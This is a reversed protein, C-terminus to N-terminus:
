KHQESRSALHPCPLSSLLRFKLICDLAPHLYPFLLCEFLYIWIWIWFMIVLFFVACHVSSFFFYSFFLEDKSDVISLVGSFCLFFWPNRFDCFDLANLTKLPFQWNKQSSRLSCTLHPSVFSCQEKYCFTLPSMVYCSSLLSLVYIWCLAPIWFTSNSSLRNNSNQTFFTLFQATGLPLYLTLLHKFTSHM